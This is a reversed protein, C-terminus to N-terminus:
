PIQSGFPITLLTHKVLNNKSNASYGQWAFASLILALQFGCSFPVASGRGPGEPRGEEPGTLQGTTKSAVEVCLQVESLEACPVGASLPNTSGGTQSGM